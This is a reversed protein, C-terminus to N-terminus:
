EHVIANSTTDPAAKSEVRDNGKSLIEFSTSEPSVLQIVRTSVCGVFM